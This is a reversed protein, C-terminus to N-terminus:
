SEVAAIRLVVSQFSSVETNNPVEIRVWFPLYTNSDSIDALDISAGETVLAWLDASPQTDGAFLKWSFGLSGDVLSDGGDIPQVTINTYSRLIDDNRVYYKIELVTGLVGDFAHAIPNSFSEDASFVSGSDATEYINLTM